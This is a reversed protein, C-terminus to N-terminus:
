QMGKNLVGLLDPGFSYTGPDNPSMAAKRPVYGILSAAVNAHKKVFAVLQKTQSADLKASQNSDWWAGPSSNNFERLKRTLWHRLDEELTIKLLM